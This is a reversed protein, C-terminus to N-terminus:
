EIELCKETNNRYTSRNQLLKQFSLRVRVPIENAYHLAHVKLGSDTNEITLLDQCINRENDKINHYFIFQIHTLTASTFNWQNPILQCTKLCESFRAVLWIQLTSGFITKGRNPPFFTTTRLMRMCTIRSEEKARGPQAGIHPPLFSLEPVPSSRTAIVSVQSVVSSAAIRASNHGTPYLIESQGRVPRRPPPTPKIYRSDSDTLHISAPPFSDKSYESHVM